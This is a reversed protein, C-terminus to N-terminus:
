RFRLMDRHSKSVRRTVTADPSLVKEVSFCSFFYRREDIVWSLSDDRLNTSKSLGLSAYCAQYSCSSSSLFFAHPRSSFLLSLSLLLHSVWCDFIIMFLLLLVSFPSSFSFSFCPLSLLFLCSSSSSLFSPISVCFLSPLWKVICFFMNQSELSKSSNNKTIRESWLLLFFGM